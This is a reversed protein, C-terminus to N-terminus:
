VDSVGITLMPSPKPSNSLDRPIRIFRSSRFGVDSSEIERVLSRSTFFAPGAAVSLGMWEMACPESLVLPAPSRTYAARLPKAM